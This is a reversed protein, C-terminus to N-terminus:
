GLDGTQAAIEESVAPVMFHHPPVRTGKDLHGYELPMAVDEVKAGPHGHWDTVKGSGRLVGVDVYEGDTKNRGRRTRVADKMGGDPLKVQARQKVGEAMVELGVMAVTEADELSVPLAALFARTDISFGGM